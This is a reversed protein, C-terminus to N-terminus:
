VTDFRRKPHRTAHRHIPLTEYQKRTCPSVVDYLADLRPTAYPMMVCIPEHCQTRASESANHRTVAGHMAGCHEVVVNSECNSIISGLENWRRAICKLICGCRLAVFCM